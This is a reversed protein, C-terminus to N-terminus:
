KSLLKNYSCLLGYLERTVSDIENRMALEVDNENGYSGTLQITQLAIAPLLPMSNYGNTKELLFQNLTDKLKNQEKM